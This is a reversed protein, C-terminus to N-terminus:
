AVMSRQRNDELAANQEAILDLHTRFTHGTKIINEFKDIMKLKTATRYENALFYLGSEARGHDSPVANIIAGKGFFAIAYVNYVRAAADESAFTGNMNKWVFKGTKRDKVKIAVRYSHGDEGRKAEPITYVGLYESRQM